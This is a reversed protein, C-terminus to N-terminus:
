VSAVFRRAFKVCAVLSIYVLYELDVFNSQFLWVATAIM